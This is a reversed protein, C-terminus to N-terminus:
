NFKLTMGVYVLYSIIIIAITGGLNIYKNMGVLAVILCIIFALNLFAILIHIQAQVKTPKNSHTKM